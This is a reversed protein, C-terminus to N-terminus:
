VLLHALLNVADQSTARGAISVESMQRVRQLYKLLDETEIWGGVGDRASHQMISLDFAVQDVLSVEHHYCGPDEVTARVEERIWLLEVWFTKCRLVLLPERTIGIHRKPSAWADTDAV